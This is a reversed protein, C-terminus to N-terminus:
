IICQGNLSSFIDMYGKCHRSIAEKNNGLSKGSRQHCLIASLSYLSASLIGYYTARRQDDFM